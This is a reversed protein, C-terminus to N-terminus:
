FKVRQRDPHLGSSDRNGEIPLELGAPEDVLERWLLLMTSTAAAVDFCPGDEESQHFEHGHGEQENRNYLLQHPFM